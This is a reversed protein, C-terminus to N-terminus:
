CTPLHSTVARMENLRGIEVVSRSNFTSPIFSLHGLFFMLRMEQCNSSFQSMAGVDLPHHLKSRLMSMQSYIEPYCCCQQTNHGHGLVRVIQPQIRCFPQRCIRAEPSLFQMCLSDRLICVINNNSNILNNAPPNFLPSKKLPPLLLVPMAFCTRIILPSTKLTIIMNRTLFQVLRGPWHACMVDM